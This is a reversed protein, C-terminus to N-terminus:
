GRSCDGGCVRVLSDLQVVLVRGTPACDSQATAASEVAPWTM